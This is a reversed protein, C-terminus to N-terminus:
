SPPDEPSPVPGGSFTEGFLVFWNRDLNRALLPDALHSPSDELRRRLQEAPFHATLAHLDRLDKERRSLLKGAAIDLPEVLHVELRGFDGLSRTRPEWGAPLYHSQFHALQLDFTQKLESLTPRLARLPAPVEDVLDIDETHRHLLDNLILAGSGGIVIRVPERLESGLKRLFRLITDKRTIMRIRNALSPFGVKDFSASACEQIRDRHVARALWDRYRSAGWYRRLGMTADHILMRTRPEPDSEAAQTEIARALEDPEFEQRHYILEWLDM